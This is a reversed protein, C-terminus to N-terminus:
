RVKAALVEQVKRLLIEPTFPKELLATGPELGGHRLIADDTYGTMFLVKLKPCQVCLRDALERGNIGPMIVDTLLLDLPGAHREYQRLADQGNVAELLRFGHQQLVQRAIKRVLENDEVLLVTGIGRTSELPDVLAIEKPQESEAVRPFYIKFTTGSGLESFVTIHGGSQKVIGYVTSLGLGTGKGVAKTTFFPEFLHSQVDADM